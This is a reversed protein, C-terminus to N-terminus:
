KEYQGGLVQRIDDKLGVVFVKFENQRLLEIDKNLISSDKCLYVIVFEIGSAKLSIFSPIAKTLYPTIVVVTADWELKRAEKVVLEEIPMDGKSTAKSIIDLFLEFRDVRKASVTVLEEGKATFSVPMSQALAYRIISAACEAGKEEIDFATEENFGHDYLDWFINLQAAANIEVNRVFFDGRHATVKWHIKKFSDGIAYKRIDRTSSHDEYASQRVAVTGFQQRMPIDLYRLLHVKPYVFLYRDDKFVKKWKFIGLVDEFETEIVGTRYVGKHKCVFDRSITIIMEPMISYIRQRQEEGALRKPLSANVKIYPIPVMGANYFDTKLKIRDGTVAKCSTEWTLNVLNGYISRGAVYSTIVLFLCIFLLGYAFLGGVFLAMVSLILILAIAKKNMKAM